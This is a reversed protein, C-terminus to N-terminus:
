VLVLEACVTLKFHMAWHKTAVMLMRLYAFLFACISSIGKVQEQPNHLCNYSLSFSVLIWIWKEFHSMSLINRFYRWFFEVSASLCTTYIFLLLMSFHCSNWIFESLYYLCHCNQIHFFNRRLKQKWWFSSKFVLQSVFIKEQTIIDRNINYIRKIRLSFIEM